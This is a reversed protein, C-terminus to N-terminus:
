AYRDGELHPEYPVLELDGLMTLDEAPARGKTTLYDGIMLGNAGAAFALPQLQRLTIGRGGCIIIERTPLVLRFLAIIRLADLPKLLERRGLPTGKIPNLFNLPVSDVSLEKLTFALEVWDARTEGMGFIGGCCVALGADKAARVSEIDEEYSHTTCINRFHSRSTELNHHYKVLGASKLMTLADRDLIGLSACCELQIEGRLLAVAEAIGELEGESPSVGSTVISFERAGMEKARKASELIRETSLLSYTEVGTKYHASQACFACDESCRGSKANVIACLRIRNGKFKERERNTVALIDFLSSNDSDAVSLAEERTIGEGRLLADEVRCLRDRNM